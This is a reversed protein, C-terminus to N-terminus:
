DGTVFYRWQGDASIGARWGLYGEGRAAETPEDLWTLEAWADPTTDAAEGTAVRPWVHIRGEETEVLGPATALVEALRLFPAEGAAELEWWLGLADVEPDDVVAHFRESEEMATFLLQEDCRLAADILLLRQAQVAEPLEPARTVTVQEPGASCDDGGHGRLVEGDAAAAPEDGPEGAVADAAPAADHDAPTHGDGLHEAADEAGATGAEDDGPVASGHAAPQEALEDAPGACAVAGVLAVPLVLAALWM